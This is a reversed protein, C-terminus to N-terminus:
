LDNAKVLCLHTMVFIDFEDFGGYIHRSLIHAVVKLLKTGPTSIEAIIAASVLRKNIESLVHIFDTTIAGALITQEVHRKRGLCIDTYRFLQLFVAVRLM